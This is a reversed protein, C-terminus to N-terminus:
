TKIYWYGAVGPGNGTGTNGTGGAASTFTQSQNAQTINVDAGTGTQMRGETGPTNTAYEWGDRDVEVTHTHSPGTHVHDMDGFAASTGATSGTGSAALGYAARGRLDPLNFTTTGNGNGDPYGDAAALADLDAYTLRSVPSGDCYLFGTPVTSYTSWVLTGTPVATVAGEAPDPIMPQQYDFTYPFQAVDDEDTVTCKITGGQAIFIRFGGDADVIIPNTNESALQGDSYTTQPTSSNTDFTSIKWGEAPVLAGNSVKMLRGPSQTIFGQPM